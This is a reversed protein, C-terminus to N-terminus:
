SRNRTFLFLIKKLAFHCVMRNRRADVWHERIRRKINNSLGIYIKKNPFVIKYIGIIGNKLEEYKMNNGGLIGVLNGEDIFGNKFLIIM